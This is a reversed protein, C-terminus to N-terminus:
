PKEQPKTKFQEMEAELVLLQNALKANDQRLRVITHEQMEKATGSFTADHEARTGAENLSRDKKGADNVWNRWTRFLDPEFNDVEERTLKRADLQKNVNVQWQRWFESLEAVSGVKTGDRIMDLFQQQLAVLRELHVVRLDRTTLNRAQVDCTSTLDRNISKTKETDALLQQYSEERALFASYEARALSVHEGAGNGNTSKSKTAM